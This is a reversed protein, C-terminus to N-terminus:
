ALACLRLALIAAAAIAFLALTGPEPVTSLNQIVTPAPTRVSFVGTGTGVTLSSSDTDIIGGAPNLAVASPLLGCAGTASLVLGGLASANSVYTSAGDSLTQTGTLILTEGGLLTNNYGKSTGMYGLSGGDVTTGGTSITLVGGNTTPTGYIWNNVSCTGTVLSCGNGVNLTGTQLVTGGSYTNADTLTLTGDGVRTLGSSFGTGLTIVNASASLAYNNSVALTGGNAITGGARLNSATFTGGTVNTCGGNPLTGGIVTTGGTGVESTIGGVDTNQSTVLLTGGQLIATAGTYSNVAGGFNQPQYSLSIPQATFNNSLSPMQLMGAACDWHTGFRAPGFPAPAGWSASTAQASPINKAASTSKGTGDSVPNAWVNPNPVDIGWAATGTNLFTPGAQGLPGLLLPSKAATGTQRGGYPLPGYIQGSATHTLAFPTVLGLFLGWVLWVSCRM